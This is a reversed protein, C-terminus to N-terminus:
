QIRIEWGQLVHQVQKRLKALAKPSNSIDVGHAQQFESAFYDVLVLELQESGLGADWAVDEM